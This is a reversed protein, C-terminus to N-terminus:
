SQFDFSRLSDYLVPVSPNPDVRFARRRQDKSKILFSLWRTLFNTDLPLGSYESDNGDALRALSGIFFSKAQM